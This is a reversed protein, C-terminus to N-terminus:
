LEGLGLRCLALISIVGVAEPDLSEDPAHLVVGLNGNLAGLVGRTEGLVGIGAVGPNEGRARESPRVDGYPSAFAAHSAIAKKGLRLGVM